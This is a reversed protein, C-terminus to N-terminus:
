RTAPTVGCAARRTTRRSGSAPANWSRTSDQHEHHMPNSLTRVFPSSEALAGGARVAPLLSASLLGELDEVHELVDLACVLDYEGSPLRDWANLIRLRDALGYRDVRFAVFDKQLASRELYDVSWGAAALALALNGSGGGFDLARGGSGCVRTLTELVPRPDHIANGFLYTGSSLYFWDDIRHESPTLLWEARFSDTRRAVLDQVQGADLGTYRRLDDIVDFTHAGVVIPQVEGVDEHRHIRLVTRRGLRGLAAGVRALEQDRRERSRIRLRTVALKAPLLPDHKSRSM